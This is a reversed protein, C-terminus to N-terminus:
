QAGPAGELPNFPKSTYGSPVTYWGAAATKTEVSVLEEKTAAETGMSATKTVTRVPYGGLAILKEVFDGSAPQLAALTRAALAFLEPQVGVDDAMWMELETRMGMTPSTVVIDVRRADHGAIKERVETPTISTDLKMAERFERLRPRMEEPVYREIEVPLELVSSTKAEHDLITLTSDKSSVLFSVEGEDRRVSGDGYWTVVTQEVRPQEQGQFVFAERVRQETLVVDAYVGPAAVILLAAAALTTRFTSTTDM